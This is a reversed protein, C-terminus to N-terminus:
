QMKQNLKRSVARVSLYVILWIAFFLLAFVATFILLVKKDFPIWSNILYCGAYALYLVSFHCLMAKPVSWEEIQNFVTAGAQLFALLYISVVGVLLQGASLSFDAVSRELIYYVIALLIPGFGGFLLGRHLFDKVYINM